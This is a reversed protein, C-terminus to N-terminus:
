KCIAVEKFQSIITKCYTYKYTHYCIVVLLEMFTIGVSINTVIDQNGGTGFTFWTFISFAIINFYTMTELINIFRHKYVRVQFMNIYFLFCIVIFTTFLLTITPDGFPTFASVLYIGVRVLLLLGTWYRHRSAYPAHFTGLFLILKQSRLRRVKKIPFYFLWQWLFLLLTFALGLLLILVATVFLIAHKGSLYGLTPDALWVFEKSEDPFNITAFSFILIISQLLRTYSLLILTALTAVPDKKGILRGFPTFCDSLIIILIVLIIIYAPFALQLWTKVYTDLGNYFCSEFGLDFNLWSIFVSSFSVESTSFLVGKSAAVINAYFIIANLTGVAVTLNLVLLFAVLGMGSLIFAIVISVLLWPWFTPCVLCHSSGLSVSLGPKCTGCLLGSRNAACQADSGNPLNLNIRVQDGPLLCYDFPCNPYIIYGRSTTQNLYTIWFNGRRIISETTVDCEKEYPQLVQHCVCVCQIEDNNAIQFGIPCACVLEMGVSHESIGLVDCPGRVSLVMEEYVLPSFLTFQLETCHKNILQTGQGEGLGGASSNLSCDVTASVAFFIHDYAILEISFQKRKTVRIRGPQYGCDPHNDRCFCLRVPYSTITDLSSEDINTLQQFSILGTENSHLEEHTKCRDLLGGFLNSGSVNAFNDFFNIFASMLFCKTASTAIQTIAANCMDSNTEDDIYLAGGYHIARNSIFNIIGLQESVGSIKATRELCMGAGNSAENGTFNSIGENIISSNALFLGGGRNNARNGHFIKHSTNGQLKFTCMSLHLSGGNNKALNASVNCAEMVIRSNIAYMSGGNNARNGVLISRGSFFNINSTSLYAAGGEEIATNYTMVIMQSYVDVKSETAHIVGGIHAVNQIFTCRDGIITVYSQFMFIVGGMSDVRNNIFICNAITVTSSPSLVLVGGSRAKNNEFTCNSISIITMNCLEVSVVGGNLSAENNSFSCKDVSMSSNESVSVVGGRSIVLNNNFNCGDLTINSNLRVHLAGGNESATNNNFSSNTAVITAHSFVYYAGGSTHAKNNDFKSNSVVMQSDVGILLVGGTDGATSNNFSSQDVVVYSKTHIHVVGGNQGAKNRDFFVNHVTCRCNTHAALVGGDRSAENSDFFSNTVAINSNSQVYVVGGSSASNYKFISNNVTMGSAEYVILAGGLHIGTNYHFSTNDVKINSNQLYIAGGFLGANNNMFFSTKVSIDVTSLAYMAGGDIAAENNQFSSKELTILVSKTLFMVGGNLDASNTIFTSSNLTINRGSDVYLVGGRRGAKNVNFSCNIVIVSSNSQISMVGGDMVAENTDFFSNKIAMESGTYAAMVGGVNEATNNNFTSNIVTINSNLMTYLVGGDSGVDNCCFLSSNVTMSSNAASMFVGGFNEASNNNFLSKRLIVHSNSHVSIVGGNSGAQNGVFPCNNLIVRSTRNALIVGGSNEATNYKFVSHSDSYTGQFLAIAGGHFGSTNNTFTNNQAFVSSSSNIFLAGGGCYDYSCEGANNNTFLSNLITISSGLELFIAGGLEAANYEFLSDSIVLNSGTISLAGGVKAYYNLYFRYTGVRNNTFSSRIITANTQILQLSSGISGHDFHSNVLTFNDVFETTSSCGTFELGNIHLQTVNTFKLSANHNCVISAPIPDVTTLGLFEDINSISLSSNLSYKGTHFLLTTNSNLYTSSNNALISLTLCIEQDPCPISPTPMIHFDSSVNVLNVILLLTVCLSLSRM